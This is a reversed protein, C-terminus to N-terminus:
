FVERASMSGLTPFCSMLVDAEADRALICHLIFEVVTTSDVGM